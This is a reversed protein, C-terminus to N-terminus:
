LYGASKDLGTEKDAVMVCDRSGSVKRLHRREPLLTRQRHCNSSGAEVM